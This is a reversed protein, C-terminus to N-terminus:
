AWDLIFSFKSIGVSDERFVFNFIKKIFSELKEAYIRKDGMEEMLICKYQLECLFDYLEPLKSIKEINAPEETIIEMDNLFKTELETQPIWQFFICLVSPIQV